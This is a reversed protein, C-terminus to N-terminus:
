TLLTKKSVATTPKAEARLRRPVGASSSDGQQKWEGSNELSHFPYILISVVCPSDLGALLSLRCLPLLSPLALSM